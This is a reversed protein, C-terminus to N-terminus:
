RIWVTTKVPVHKYLWESDKESLRVCGHSAKSGLEYQGSKIYQGTRDFLISHYMYDRFFVMAYKCRYGKEVGIYPISYQVEYLGTPTPNNLKGTSCIFSKELRWKGASKKLVYTRQRYLDTWLLYDTQSPIQSLTAFDEIEKSSVKRIIAGQEGIIRVSGYPVQLKKGNQDKVWCFTRKDSRCVEIRDKMKLHGVSYLMQGEIVHTPFIQSLQRLYIATSYKKFVEAEEQGYYRGEDDQVQWENIEIIRTSIYIAEEILSWNRTENAELIFNETIIDFSEGNWYLHKADVKLLHDTLNQISGEKVKFLGQISQLNEELWYSKGDTKVKALAKVAELPIWYNQEHTLAYSRVNGCYVPYESMYVSGEYISEESTQEEQSLHKRREVYLINSEKHLSMGMQELTSLSIYLQGNNEYLNFQKQAVFPVKSVHIEGMYVKEFRNKCYWPYTIFLCLLGVFWLQWGRSIRKVM